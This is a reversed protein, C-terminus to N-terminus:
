YRLCARHCRQCHDVDIGHVVGRRGGHVIARRRAPDHLIAFTWTVTTHTYQDVDIPDPGTPHAREATPTPRSAPRRPATTATAGACRTADVNVLALAFM